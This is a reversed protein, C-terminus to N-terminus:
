ATAKRVMPPLPRDDGTAPVVEDGLESALILESGGDWEISVNGRGKRLAAHLAGGPVAVGSSGTSIPLVVELEDGAVVTADPLFRVRPWGASGCLALTSGLEDVEELGLRVLIEGM